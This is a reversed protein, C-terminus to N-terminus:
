PLKPIEPISIQPPASIRGGLFGILGSIATNLSLFTLGAGGAFGKMHLFVGGIAAESALLTVCIVVLSVQEPSRRLPAKLPAKPVKIM